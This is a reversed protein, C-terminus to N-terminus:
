FGTIHISSQEIIANLPSQRVSSTDFNENITWHNDM